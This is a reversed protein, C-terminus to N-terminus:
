ALKEVAEAPIERSLRAIEARIEFLDARDAKKLYRTREPRTAKIARVALILIEREAVLQTFEAAVLAPKGNFFGPTKMENGKLM